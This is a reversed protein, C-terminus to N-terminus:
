GYSVEIRGTLDVYFYLFDTETGDGHRQTIRLALKGFDIALEVVDKGCPGRGLRFTAVAITPGTDDVEFRSPIRILTLPFAADNQKM